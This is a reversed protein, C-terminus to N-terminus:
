VGGPDVGLWPGVGTAGAPLEGFVLEVDVEVGDRHVARVLDAEQDARDALM